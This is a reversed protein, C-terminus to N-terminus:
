YDVAYQMQEEVTIPPPKPRGEVTGDFLDKMEKSQYRHGEPLWRRTGGFTQKGLEMSHEAGLNCGCWPCAAFGQHSFGGVTGYGPFDHITWLLMGWLTFNRQGVEVRIDYAPIGEWLQLLEEVLPELYVDFNETTVSQRGPILLALMVFFKKTSLWSPLNYNLLMVLWTSWNSRHQKYPNVGDAALAFHVNRPDNALSPDVNTHFHRWAKSDCPHRVLGDGGGRDSRNESHWLMLKLISPSRFMRQLRPIIPFHRLVKVPFKKREQNRYRPGNCKPCHTAKAHKGRFLVCGEACAHITTYALGLTRTLSQAAHYNKPLCNVETLVHGHLIAFMEDAFTNSVGHVTCLNMLLITAALKTCRAGAYLEKIAEHLNHPDFQPDEWAPEVSESTTGMDDVADFNEAESPISRISCEDHMADATMFADAVEQHVRDEIDNVPDDVAFAKELM